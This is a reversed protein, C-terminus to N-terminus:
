VVNAHQLSTRLIPTVARGRLESRMTRSVNLNKAPSLSLSTASDLQVTKCQDVEDNGEDYEEGAANVSTSAKEEAVIASGSVAGFASTTLSARGFGLTAGLGTCFGTNRIIPICTRM